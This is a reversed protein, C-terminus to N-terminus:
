LRRRAMDYFMRLDAFATWLPYGFVISNNREVFRHGGLAVLLGLAPALLIAWLTATLLAGVVGVGGVVWGLLHVRRNWRSSHSALYYAYFEEFSTFQPPPMANFNRVAKM